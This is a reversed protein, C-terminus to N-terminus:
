LGPEWLFQLTNRRDAFMKGLPSSVEDFIRDMFSKPKRSLYALEVEGEIKGREKALAVADKFTGIADILGIRVAETGGIVRGDSLLSIAEKSLKRQDKVTKKFGEFTQNVLRKLHRKAKPSVPHLPSGAAKLEGSTITIPDVYLKDLLRSVNTLQLLVGLSGTITGPLAFVYDSGLAAYLGGSAALDGMSVIVPRNKRLKNLEMFIEQSAGVAGGPSNVRVVVAKYAENDLIDDIQELVPLSETIVGEIEIVAINGIKLDRDMSVLQFLGGMFSFIFFIGFGILLYKLFSRM